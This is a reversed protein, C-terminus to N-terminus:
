SEGGLKETLATVQAALQANQLGLANIMMHEPTPAVVTPPQDFPIYDDDLKITGNAFYSHGDVVQSVDDVEVVTLGRDTTGVQADSNAYGWGHVRNNEDIDVNLKVM